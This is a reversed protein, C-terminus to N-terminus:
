QQMYASGKIKLLRSDNHSYYSRVINLFLLDMHYNFELYESFYYYSKM